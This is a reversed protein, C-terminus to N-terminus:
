GGLLDRVPGADDPRSTQAGPGGKWTRCVRGQRLDLGRRPFHSFRAAAATGEHQEEWPRAAAM